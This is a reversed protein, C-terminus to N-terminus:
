LLSFLNCYNTEHNVATIINNTIFFCQMVYSVYASFWCQETTFHFLSLSHKCTWTKWICSPKFCSSQIQAASCTALIQWTDSNCICICAAIKCELMIQVFFAAGVGRIGVNDDNLQEEDRCSSWCLLCWHLYIHCWVTVIFEGIIGSFIYPHLM